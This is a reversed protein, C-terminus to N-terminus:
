KGPERLSATKLQISTEGIRPAVGRLQLPLGSDSALLLSIDGSLGLLSFDAKDEEPGLPSVQLRVQQARQTGTVKEQGNLQYNVEIERAEGRSLIVLYFNHDTHVAIEMTDSGSELFRGALPLLAYADTVARQGLDHPYRLTKRSTIPWESDDGGSNKGPERRERLISDPRYAYTKLRQNKGSSLRKRAIAAGSDARLTLKVEEANSVVSSSARLLWQSEAVESPAISIRSRATAWLAKQEFSLEQWAPLPHSALSRTSLLSCFLLLCAAPFYTPKM